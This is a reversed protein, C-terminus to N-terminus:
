RTDHRGLHSSTVADSLEQLADLDKQTAERTHVPYAVDELSSVKKRKGTTKEEPALSPAMVSLYDLDQSSFPDIRVQCTSCLPVDKSTPQRWQKEDPFFVRMVEFSAKMHQTPAQTLCLGIGGCPEPSRPESRMMCHMVPIWTPDPPVVYPTRPQLDSLTGLQNADLIEIRVKRVADFLARLLDEVAELRILATDPSAKPPM